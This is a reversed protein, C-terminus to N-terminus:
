ITSIINYLSILNSPIKSCHIKNDSVTHKTNSLRYIILVKYFQYDLGEWFNYFDVNNTNWNRLVQCKPQHIMIRIVNQYFSYKREFKFTRVISHESHCRYISWMLARCHLHANNTVTIVLHFTNWIPRNEPSAPYRTSSKLGHTKLKYSTNLEAGCSWCGAILSFYALSFYTNIM